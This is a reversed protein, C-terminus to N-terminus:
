SQVKSTFNTEQKQARFFPELFFFFFFFTFKLQEFLCIEIKGDVNTDNRIIM